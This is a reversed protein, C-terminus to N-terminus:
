APNPTNDVPFARWLETARKQLPTPDTVRILLPGKPDSRMRCQHRSRTALEQLLSSFSHLPLGDESRRRNKKRQLDQPPEAAAVPDREAQWGELDEHQFLLPALASRMHWEVYYALMCVFLHARVRREARHHIPRVKLDVSKLCRFAQEVRTPQKYGRVADEASMGTESTRVIYLGDLAAEREIGAAKRSYELLSDEIRTRFHKAMKFRNRVRRVKVAIETATLPKRTRRGIERQIRQFEQETSRLLDERRHKRRAALLPNHCVALLEGPFQSSRIAALNAADFLSPQLTGEEVLKRLRDSRLASIWGLGPYQCPDEIRADTLMGRDGILVLRRLGFSRRLTEVQDPVTAPDATNGPYARVAVPRRRRDALLGYVVSPRGRKGDRSYGFRMLPCARGECYSSSVDYLVQADDGLHRKALRREIAPQREHLWDMAAYLDGEGAQELQLEEALTTSHWLRTTALKSAPQLLRQALMALVCSRRRSPSRLKRCANLVLDVHGHPLSRFNSFAEDLSILPVNLLLKRLTDVKAPPWSSLNALTRKRVRNGERWGQRLLVRSPTLQSEPRHGRVHSCRHLSLDM